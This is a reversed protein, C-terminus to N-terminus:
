TTPQTNPPTRYNDKSLALLYEALVARDISQGNVKASFGYSTWPNATKTQSYFYNALSSKQDPKFIQVNGTQLTKIKAEELKKSFNETKLQLGTRFRSKLADRGESNDYGPNISESLSIPKLASIIVLGTVIETFLGIVLFIIIKKAM